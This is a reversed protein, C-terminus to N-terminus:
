LITNRITCVTLENGFMRTLRDEFVSQNGREQFQCIRLLAVTNLDWRYVICRNIGGRRRGVIIKIATM